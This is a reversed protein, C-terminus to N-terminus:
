EDAADAYLPQVGARIAANEVLAQLDTEEWSKALVRVLLPNADEMVNDYTKFITTECGCQLDLLQQHRLEASALDEKKEAEKRTHTAWEQPFSSATRIKKRCKEWRCSGEDRWVHAYFNDDILLEVLFRRIVEEPVKDHFPIIFMLFPRQQTQVWREDSCCPCKTWTPPPATGPQSEMTLMGYDHLRLLGPVLAVTEDFIPASHYCSRKSEGRLFKRNLDLLEQFSEALRWDRMVAEQEGESCTSHESLEESSSDSPAVTQGTSPANHEQASHECLDESISAVTHSTSPRNREQISHESSEVSSSEGSAPNQLTLPGYCEKGSYESPEESSSDSSAM